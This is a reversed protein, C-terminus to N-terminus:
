KWFHILLQVLLFLAAIVSTWVSLRTELVTIRNAIIAHASSYENRFAEFTKNSESCVDKRVFQDRDNVVDTRLENLLELRRDLEKTKIQVALDMGDLRALVARYRLESAQDEAAHREDCFRRMNYGNIRYTM